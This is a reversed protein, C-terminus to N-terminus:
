DDVRLKEGAQWEGLFQRPSQAAFRGLITEPDGCLREVLALLLSLEHHNPGAAKHCRAALNAHNDAGRLTANRDYEAHRPSINAYQEMMRIAQCVNLWERGNEAYTDALSVLWREHWTSAIEEIHDHVLRDFAVFDRGLNGGQRRSAIVYWVVHTHWTDKHSPPSPYRLHARSVQEATPSIM